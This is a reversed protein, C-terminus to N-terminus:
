GFTFANASVGKAFEITVTLGKALKPLSVLRYLRYSDVKVIGNHVDKGGPQPIGEVSVKVEAPSDSGMVLYVDKASFRYTLKAGNSRATIKEGNVEWNGSLTWSDLPLSPVSKYTKVGDSLDPTGVFGNARETGLYTEPSQGESPTEVKQKPQSIPAQVSLLQQIADETKDYEGEGFHVYRVNGQKDILYKAPWYRNSYSRWTDFDNDLAVPYTIGANKVAKKVNAAVKEFAFEPAHVGIIEFGKDHYKEYWTNLYPQTRQCNICSYTWFDILVVKGRLEKLQLPNSNIWDKIGVLEPAKGFNKLSDANSEKNSESQSVPKNPGDSPLLKEEIQTLSPTWNTVVAEIKKDFGTLIFIGVLIFLAALIRQFWGRPNAAWGLKQVLSRGLLAIALLVAALGICYLSLYLMGALPKAPLVTAIVWAYTPSCSSFVPGLAAGTLIASLTGNKQSQANHLMDHTKNGLRTWMMVRAWLDPILMSIGLVIVLIGSGIAWVRPDINILLTTAKLLLTFILLSIILSGAVIFPRKRNSNGDISGGVIIPLFPLVCPALATLAGALISLLAIALM